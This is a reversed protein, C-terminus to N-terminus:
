LRGVLAEAGEIVASYFDNKYHSPTDYDSRLLTSETRITERGLM